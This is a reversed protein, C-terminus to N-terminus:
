LFWYAPVNEHTSSHEPPHWFSCETHALFLDLLPPVSMSTVSSWLCVTVLFPVTTPVCLAEPGGPVAGGLIPAPDTYIPVLWVVPVLHLRAGLLGTDPVSYFPDRQTPDPRRLPVHRSGNPILPLAKVPLCRAEPWRIDTLCYCTTQAVPLWGQFGLWGQSHLQGDLGQGM